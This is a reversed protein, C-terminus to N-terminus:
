QDFEKYRQKLMALANQYLSDNCDVYENPLMEEKNLPISEDQVRQYYSM